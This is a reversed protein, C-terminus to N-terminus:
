LDPREDWIWQYWKKPTLRRDEWLAHSSVPSLTSGAYASDLKIVYAFGTRWRLGGANRYISYGFIHIKRHKRIANLEDRTFSWTNSTNDPDPRRGWGKDPKVFAVLPFEHERDAERPLRMHESFATPYICVKELWCGSKGQNTLHWQMHLLFRRGRHGPKLTARFIKVSDLHMIPREQAIQAELASTAAQTSKRTLRLTYLIGVLGLASVIFQWKSWFAAENASDAAKWQACLDSYRERYPADCPRYYEGPPIPEVAKVATAADQAPQKEASDTKAKHNAASNQNPSASVLVLWGFAACLIGRYGRLM